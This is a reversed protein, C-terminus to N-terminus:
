RSRVCDIGGCIINQSMLESLSLVRQALNLGVLNLNWPFQAARHSLQHDFDVLSIGMLGDWRLLLQGAASSGTHGSELLDLM